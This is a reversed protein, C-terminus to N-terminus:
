KIQSEPLFINSIECSFILREIKGLLNQTIASQYETMGREYESKSITGEFEYCEELRLFDEIRSILMMFDM